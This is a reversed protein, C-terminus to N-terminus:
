LFNKFVSTADEISGSGQLRRKQKTYVDSSKVKGRQKSMKPASSVQKKTKGKKSMLRDYKMAKHLVNVHRSDYVQSMENTSFGLDKGYSRIDRKIQEAKANDSFEPILEKLKESQHSINQVFQHEQAAQQQKAVKYQEQEILKMKRQNETQEAIRVAYGVPDNEKMNVLDEESDMDENLVQTIQSLKQAYEDRLQMSEYIKAANAEVVKAQEALKQSKQTYDKGMQYSKILESESVELEEGAAKVKFTREAEPEDEESEEDDLEEDDEIEDEDTSEEEDYEEEDVEETEESEVEEAEHKDTSEEADLLQEFVEETTPTGVEETSTDNIQETM